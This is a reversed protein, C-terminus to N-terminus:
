APRLHRLPRGTLRRCEDALHARQLGPRDAAAFVRHAADAGGDDLAAEALASIPMWHDTGIRRAAEEFRDTRGTAVLLWATQCAAEDAPWRLHVARHEQELDVLIDHVLDVEDQQVRQFPLTHRRFGLGYREWVLLECLDRYYAAREMGAQRWDIGLYAEWVDGRLAGIVGYSDDSRDSLEILATHVARYLALREGAPLRPRDLRDLRAELTAVKKFSRSATVSDKVEVAVRFRDYWPQPPSPFVPWSGYKARRELRVQPTEIMAPTMARGEISQDAVKRRAKAVLTRDAVHDATVLDAPAVGAAGLRERLDVLHSWKREGDAGGHLDGIEAVLVEELRGLDGGHDLVAVLCMWLDWHVWPGQWPEPGFIPPRRAASM